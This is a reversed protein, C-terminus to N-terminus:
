IITMPVSNPARLSPKQHRCLRRIDNLVQVLTLLKGSVNNM